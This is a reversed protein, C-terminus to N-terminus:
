ILHSNDFAFLYSIFVISEWEGLLGTGCGLEIVLSSKLLQNVEISDHLYKLLVFTSDWLKGGIGLSYPCEFGFVRMDHQPLAIERICSAGISQGLNVFSKVVKSDHYSKELSIPLSLVPMVEIDGPLGSSLSFRFIFVDPIDVLNVYGRLACSFKFRGSEDMPNCDFDFISDDNIIDMRVPTRSMSLTMVKCLIKIHSPNSNKLIERNWLGFENGICMKYELKRHPSVHAPPSELITLRLTQFETVLSSPPTELQMADQDDGVIKRFKSQLSLATKLLNGSPGLSLAQKVDNLAKVYNTQYEYVMARRLYAKANNTDLALACTCDDLSKDYDRVKHYCLARNLLLSVLSVDSSGSGNEFNLIAQSYSKIAEEFLHEEFYRNGQEYLDKVDDNM